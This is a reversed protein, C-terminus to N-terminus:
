ELILRVIFTVFYAKNSHMYFYTFLLRKLEMLCIHIWHDDTKQAKNEFNIISNDIILYSFQGKTACLRIHIFETSAM